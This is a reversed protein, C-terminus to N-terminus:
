VIKSKVPESFIQATLNSQLFQSPNASTETSIPTFEFFASKKPTYSIIEFDM